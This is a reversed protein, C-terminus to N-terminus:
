NITVNLYNNSDDHCKGIKIVIVGDKRTTLCYRKESSNDSRKYVTWGKAKQEYKETVSTEGKPGDSIIVLYPTFNDFLDSYYGSERGHHSAIFVNTNKIANVFSNDKLLEKWSASENDGPIVVKLDLYEIITVASHNNINSHGCQNPIFTKINVGGNNKPLKIDEDESVPLSYRESIEIYKDIKESDYNPNAKKVDEETLHNPRTLIKPSLEDFNMIDDIHDTHPHTIIVQDINEIKYKEKLHLLPSFDENNSYKGSGLDIVLHKGNPTNIYSSSGHQVDWIVIELEESM